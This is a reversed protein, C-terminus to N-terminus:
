RLEKILRELENLEEKLKEIIKILKAVTANRVNKYGKSTLFKLLMQSNTKGKVMYSKVTGDKANLFDISILGRGDRTTITVKWYITGNIIVPMPEQVSLEDWAWNPHAKM